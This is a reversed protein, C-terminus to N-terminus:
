DDRGIKAPQPMKCKNASKKLESWAQVLSCVNESTKRLLIAVHMVRSASVPPLGGKEFFSLVNGAVM